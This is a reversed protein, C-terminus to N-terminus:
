RHLISGTHEHSKMHKKAPEAYGEVTSKSSKGVDGAPQLVRKKPKGKKDLVSREDVKGKKLQCPRHGVYQGQMERLARAGERPDGLSVFGYGKSKGSRAEKIVKAKQFSEYRNFSHSLMADSVEPGLNGVFIRFDNDPWEGLTPDM